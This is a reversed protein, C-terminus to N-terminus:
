TRLCMTDDFERLLDDTSSARKSQLSSDYRQLLTLKSCTNFGLLTPGSDAVIFFNLDRQCDKHRVALTAV